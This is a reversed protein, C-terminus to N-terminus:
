CGHVSVHEEFAAAAASAREQAERAAVSLQEIDAASSPRQTLLVVAEAYLRASTAFENAL